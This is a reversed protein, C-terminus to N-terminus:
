DDPDEESSHLERELEEWLSLRNRAREREKEIRAAEAARAKFRRDQDDMAQCVSLFARLVRGYDADSFLPGKAGRITQDLAHLATRIEPDM